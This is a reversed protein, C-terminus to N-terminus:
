VNKQLSHPTELPKIREERMMSVLYDKSQESHVVGMRFHLNEELAIQKVISVIKGLGIDTGGTGASGVILPIKKSRAGKLILRLDRKIANESFHLEGTALFLTGPDTSGADVGIVDPNWSLGRELSEAELGTGLMGNAALIRAKKM